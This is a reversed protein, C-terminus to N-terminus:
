GMSHGMVIIKKDPYASKAKEFNTNLDRVLNKWGDKLGFYGTESFNQNSKGHNAMDHMFVAYGQGVLYEIFDRYRGQHEAMGHHIQLVAKVKDDDPSWQWAKIECLGSASPYSYEKVKM